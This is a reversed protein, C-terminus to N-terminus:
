DEAEDWGRSIGVHVRIFRGVPLNGVRTTQVFAAWEPGNLNKDCLGNLTDSLGADVLGSIAREFAEGTFTEWPQSPFKTRLSALCEGHTRGPTGMALFISIDDVQHEDLVQYFYKGDVKGGVVTKLVALQAPQDDFAGLAYEVRLDHKTQYATEEDGPMWYM